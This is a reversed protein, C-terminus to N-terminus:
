NQSKSIHWLYRLAAYSVSTNVTVFSAAQGYSYGPYNYGSPNGVYQQYGLIIGLSHKRSISYDISLIYVPSASILNAGDPEGIGGAANWINSNTGLAANIVITGKPIGRQKTSDRQAFSSINIILFMLLLAYRLM